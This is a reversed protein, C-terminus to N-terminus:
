CGCSVSTSRRSSCRRTARARGRGHQSPVSEPLPPARDRGQTRDRARAAGRRRDRRVDLGLRPRAHGRRRSRGGRARPHRGRDRRGERRAAAGDPRPERPRVLRQRDRGGERARRDPARSRAHRPDGVPARADRRRAPVPPLRRRREAGDRVRDLHGAAHAVDPILWPESGNALYADSLLFVPTRYKIAIRAAEIAADFCGSPTSAAVVPM